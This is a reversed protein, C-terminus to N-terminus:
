LVLVIDHHPLGTTLDTYEHGRTEFGHRLYFNLAAVRARAWVVTAGCSRVRDLGALLVADSVGTGRMRPDTAMGRLQYGAHGPLDPYRREMWSSVAVVHGDDIVGLHLTGADHDGDFEVVDTATGDRLISRRLAHTQEARLEVVTFVAGVTAGSALVPSVTDPVTDPM